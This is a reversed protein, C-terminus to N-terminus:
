AAWARMIAETFAAKGPSPITPSSSEAKRRLSSFSRPITQFRTLSVRSAAPSAFSSIGNPLMLFSSSNISVISLPNCSPPLVPRTQARSGISPVFPKRLPPCYATQKPRKTSPFAVTPARPTGFRGISGEFGSPGFPTRREPTRPSPATM